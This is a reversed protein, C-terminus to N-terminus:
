LNLRLTLFISGKAYLYFTELLFYSGSQVFGCGYYEEDRMTINNLNLLQGNSSVNVKTSNLDVYFTANQNM